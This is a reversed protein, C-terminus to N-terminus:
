GGFWRRKRREPPAAPTPPSSERSAPARRVHISATATRDPGMQVPALDVLENAM